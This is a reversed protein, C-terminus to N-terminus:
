PIIGNKIEERRLKDRERRRKNIIERNNHQYKKVSELIKDRNKLYDLRRSKNIKEKNAQYYVKRKQNYKEKNDNWWAKLEKKRKERYEPDDLLRKRRAKNIKDKYRHYYDYNILNVMEKNLLRRKRMTERGSVQSKELNNWYYVVRKKNILPRNKIRYREARVLVKKQNTYYEVKRIAKYRKDENEMLEKNKNSIRGLKYTMCEPVFDKILNLFKEASKKNFMIRYYVRHENLYKRYDEIIVTDINWKSLFFNKLVLHDKFTFGQTSLSCSNDRVYYTGDDCYWVALGLPTLQSLILPNIVKVWKSSPLISKVYFLSHMETFISAYNTSLTYKYYKPGNNGFRTKVRFYRSLIKVKWFFYDKQKLSHAEVYGSNKSGRAIYGDGLLSGLLVQKVEEDIEIGSNM